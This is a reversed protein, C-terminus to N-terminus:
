PEALAATDASTDDAETPSQKVRYSQIVTESLMVNFKSATNTEAPSLTCKITHEGPSLVLAATKIIDVGEAHYLEEGDPSILSFEANVGNGAIAALSLTCYRYDDVTFTSIRETVTPYEIVESLSLLTSVSSSYVGIVGCVVIAICLFPCLIRMWTKPRISGFRRLGSFIPGISIGAMVVAIFLFTRPEYVVEMAEEAYASGMGYLAYVSYANNLMHFLIPMMLSGTKYAIYGWGIGMLTTAPLKFLDFHLIGFLLGSLIIAPAPSRHARLLRNLFFGRFIMEECFAPVVAICLVVKLPSAGRMYNEYLFIDTTNSMDFASTLCNAAIILFYFGVAIWISRLAPRLRPPNMPFHAGLGGRRARCLLIVAALMALETLTTGALGLPASVLSGLVLIACLIIFILVVELYATLLNKTKSM